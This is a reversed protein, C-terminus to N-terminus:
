ISPFQGIIRSLLYKEQKRTMRGFCEESERGLAFEPNQLEPVIPKFLMEWPTARARVESQIPTVNNLPIKV